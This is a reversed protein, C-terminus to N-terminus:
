PTQLTYKHAKSLKKPAKQSSKPIVDVLKTEDVRTIDSCHESRGIWLFNLTFMTWFCGGITIQTFVEVLRDRWRNQIIISHTLKPSFRGNIAEDQITHGLKQPTRRTFLQM